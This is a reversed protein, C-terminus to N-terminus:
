ARELVVGSRVVRLVGGAAQEVLEGSDLRFEQVGTSVWHQEQADPVSDDHRLREYAMVKYAAGDSGRAPFSELFQLKLDM